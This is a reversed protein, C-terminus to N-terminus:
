AMNLAALPHRERLEEDKKSFTRTCSAVEGFFGLNLNFSVKYIHNKLKWDTQHHMNVKLQLHRTLWLRDVESPIHVNIEYSNTVENSLVQLSM